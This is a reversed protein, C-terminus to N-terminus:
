EQGLTEIKFSFLVTWWICMENSSPHPGECNQRKNYYLTLATWKHRGDTSLSDFFSSDLYRGSIILIWLTPKTHFLCAYILTCYESKNPPPPPTGRSAQFFPTFFSSSPLISLTEADAGAGPTTLRTSVDKDSGGIVYPLVSAFLSCSKPCFYSSIACRSGFKGRM